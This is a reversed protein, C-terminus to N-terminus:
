ANIPLCGEPLRSRMAALLSQAADEAIHITLESTSLSIEVKDICRRLMHDSWVAPFSEMIKCIARLQRADANDGLLTQWTAEECFMERIFQEVEYCPYRIGKCPTRGGATSGCRYYSNGIGHIESTWRTTSHTTLKRGCRPCVIKQGLAYVRRQRRAKHNTRRSGIKEAAEEFLLRSVIPPHSGPRTEQGDAFQGLYVPNRLITLVARPTWRGGGSMKGSRSKYVKTRWCQKNLIRAIERPAQGRAARNFIARIRRAEVENPVLQKTLPDADYGYPARGAIRRGHAKLYVRSDAIRSAIMEREFEAFAALIHRLFRSEPSSNLEPQNILVLEVGARELEDLLVVAQRMNRSLRDLAVAYLREIGGAAIAQRLSQLAPRDLTAGSCGLDDFRQGIWELEQRGSVMASDRCTIFQVDCSSFSDGRDVSQRTYIAYRITRPSTASM